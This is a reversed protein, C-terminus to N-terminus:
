SEFLHHFLRDRNEFFLKTTQYHETEELTSEHIGEQTLSYITSEPYAMLIPSHTAIVFQSGQEALEHMRILMSLQRMPSLAAEPEDLIYLGQGSFRNMFLSFFSEGHSQEHLSIGGYSNIVKEGLGESDNDMEDIYSAVNYFSEARLFFGDKPTNYSKSIQIYEHLPSHSDYTNFRFNKTGGEANFGLSVAIGELLTSKGTGNEGIIFTVNPHFVLSQLTRIAPLCYPYASFSPINEKQLSVSKLFPTEIM